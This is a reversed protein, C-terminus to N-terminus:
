QLEDRVRNLCLGLRNQGTWATPDGAHEDTYATGSGWVRDHKNSEVIKTTGTKSLIILLERNQIFKASVAKYMVGDAKEALWNRANRKTGDGLHKQEVPDDALMILEATTTEGAYLARSYQYFQEVCNFVRGDITIRCPHFNSLPSFRGFFITCDGVQRQGLTPLSIHPCEKITEITYPVSEIIIRDGQLRAKKGSDKVAKLVPYLARRKREIAPPYDERLKIKNKELKYRHNWVEMRDQYYNFRVIIPRSASDSKKKGLRHCRDLRIREKANKCGLKTEFFCLVRDSCDEDKWATEDFGEIILNERRSYTDLALIDSKLKKNEAKVAEIEKSRTSFDVQKKKLKDLTKTKEKLEAIDQHAFQVSSQLDVIDKTAQTVSTQLNQFSANLSAFEGRLTTIDKQMSPLCQVTKQISAIMSKLDNDGESITDMHMQHDGKGAM